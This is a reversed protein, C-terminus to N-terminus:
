TVPVTFTFVLQGTETLITFTVTDGIVPNLGPPCDASLTLTPFNIRGGRPQIPQSQAQAHGPPQNSGPKTECGAPVDASVTVPQNGLGAASGGTCTVTGGSETCVPSELLHAGSKQALAVTAIAIFGLVTCASAFLQKRM